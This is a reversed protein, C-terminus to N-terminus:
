GIIRVGLHVHNFHDGAQATNIRYILQFRYGGRVVSILGSGHWPIGFRQALAAALADEQPTAVGNSMDAAWAVNPPGQHDSQGGGQTPGHVANAADNQAVTRPIGNANAMPLVITDIIQKPTGEVPKGPGCDAPGARVPTATAMYKLYLGSTYTTWPTWNRGGNPADRWKKIANRMNVAPDHLNGPLVAGLIQMVGIAVGWKTPPGVAGPDGGSEAMGVAGAIQAQDPPGGERVWLAEIQAQSLVGAPPVCSGGAAPAGQVLLAVGALSFVLLFVVVAAAIAALRIM